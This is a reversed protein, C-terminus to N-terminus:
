WALSCNKDVATSYSLTTLSALCCPYRHDLVGVEVPNQVKKQRIGTALPPPTSSFQENAQYDLYFSLVDGVYAVTDLMLAGFSGQNFDQFSNPYYRKAYEILDEKISDFERNTYKIPPRKAM